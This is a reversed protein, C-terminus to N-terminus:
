NERATIKAAQVAAAIRHVQEQAGDPTGHTKIFMLGETGEHETVMYVCYCVVGRANVWPLAVASGPETGPPADVDTGQKPGNLCIFSKAFRSTV